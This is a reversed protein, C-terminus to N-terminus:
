GPTSPDEAPPTTVYERLKERVVESVNTGEAEAKAKAANWLEDSIRVPRITTGRSM